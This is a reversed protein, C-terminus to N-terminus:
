FDELFLHRDVDEFSICGERINNVFCCSVSAVKHGPALRCEPLLLPLNGLHQDMRQVAIRSFNVRNTLSIAM